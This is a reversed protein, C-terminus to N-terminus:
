APPRFLLWLRDCAFGHASNMIRGHDLHVSTVIFSAVLAAPAHMCPCECAGSKCCDRQPHPSSQIDSSQGAADSAAEHQPCDPNRSGAAVVASEFPAHSVPMAHAFDGLVLRSLLLLTMAWRQLVLRRMSASYGGAPHRAVATGHDVRLESGPIGGPTRLAHDFIDDRM